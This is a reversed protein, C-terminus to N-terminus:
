ARSFAPCFIIKLVNALRQPYKRALAPLHRFDNFFHKCCMGSKRTSKRGCEPSYRGLRRRGEGVVEVGCGNRTLAM